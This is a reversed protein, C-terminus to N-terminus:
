AAARSRCRRGIGFTRTAAQRRVQFVLPICASPSRLWFGGAYSNWAGVRGPCSLVRLSSVIGSGGWDIAARHRWAQPVSVVVAPSGARVTLGYKTAYRWPRVGGGVVQPLYAPPVSLVGFVVRAGSLTGSNMQLIVQECDVQRQAALPLEPPKAIVALRHSSCGTVLLVAALVQLLLPPSWALKMICIGGGAALFTFLNALAKGGARVM